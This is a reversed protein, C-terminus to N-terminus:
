LTNLRAPVVGIVQLLNDVDAAAQAAIDNMQNDNPYTALAIMDINTCDLYTHNYRSATTKADELQAEFAAQRLSLGLKPIMYFFDLMCFDKVIRHAEGFIHECAETSHLWPIFPIVNNDNDRHLYM